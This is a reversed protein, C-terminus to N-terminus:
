EELRTTEGTAPEHEVPVNQSTTGSARSVRESELRDVLKRLQDNLQSFGTTVADELDQVFKSQKAQSIAQRGREEAQQFQPNTQITRVATQLQSTLERVGGALDRQIQKARESEIAARLAAEVQQGMERLESALDSSQAGQTDEDRPQNSQPTTDESM